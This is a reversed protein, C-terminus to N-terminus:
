NEGVYSLAATEIGNSALWHRITAQESGKTPMNWLGPWSPYSRGARKARRVYREYGTLLAHNKRVLDGYARKAEPDETALRACVGIKAIQRRNVPAWLMAYWAHAVAIDTRSYGTGFFGSRSAFSRGQVTSLDAYLIAESLTIWPRSKRVELAALLRANM